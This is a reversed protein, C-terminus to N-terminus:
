FEEMIFFWPLTPDYHEVNFEDDEYDDEPDEIFQYWGLEIMKTIHEVSLPRDTASVVFCEIDFGVIAKEPEKYYSELINLGAKFKGFSM